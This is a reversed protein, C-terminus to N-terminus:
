ATPFDRNICPKEGLAAGSDAPLDVLPLLGSIIPVLESSTRGKSVFACAGAALSEDRYIQMDSSSHMVILTEPYSEKIRRTADIGNMGPLSIDMVVLKLNESACLPIASEASDSAILSFQPFATGLLSMVATRTAPHDEVILIRIPKSDGPLPDPSASYM